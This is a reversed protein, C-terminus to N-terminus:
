RRMGMIREEYSLILDAVGKLIGMRSAMEKLLDLDGEKLSILPLLSVYLLLYIPLLIIRVPSPIFIGIISIPVAPILSSIYISASGRLDISANFSRIILLGLSLSFAGSLIQAAILGAIGFIRMLISSSPIFFLVNSVTLILIKWTKGLSSLFPNISLSGFSVLFYNISLMSLYLPSLSYRGGFLIRVIDPSFIMVSTALPVMLISSYKVSLKFMREVGENLVTSFAPLLSTAIPSSIMGLASSLSLAAYYNGIEFDSSSSLLMVSYQNALIAIISSLYIPIGYGLLSSLSGSARRSVYRRILLLGFVGAVSYGILHGSIAGLVSFGAIVLSTSIILKSVSQLVPIMSSRKAMGLGLLISATSNAAIAFPVALASLKVYICLDPRRLIYSSYLDSILIGIISLSISISLAVILGFSAYEKVKEDNRMLAITRTLFSTIGIDSFGVLLPLLSISLSYLGYSAPGLLRALIMSNLALIAASMINGSILFFSGKAAETAAERLKEEMLPVEQM